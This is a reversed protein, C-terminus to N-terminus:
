ECRCQNLSSSESCRVRMKSSWSSWGSCSGFPRAPPPPPFLGPPGWRRLWVLQLCLIWARSFCFSFSCTFSDARLASSAFSSFSSVCPEKPPLADMLLRGGQSMQPIITAKRLFIVLHSNHFYSCLMGLVLFIHAKEASFTQTDLVPSVYSMHRLHFCVRMRVRCHRSLVTDGHVEGFSAATHLRVRVFVFRHRIQGHDRCGCAKRGLVSHVVSTKRSADHM